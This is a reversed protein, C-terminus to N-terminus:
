VGDAVDVFQAMVTKEVWKPSTRAILANEFELAQWGCEALIQTVDRQLVRYSMPGSFEGGDFGADLEATEFSATMTSSVRSAVVSLTAKPATKTAM